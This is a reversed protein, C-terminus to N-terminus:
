QARVLDLALPPDGAQSWTGAIESHTKNMKGEYNGKVAPCDFHVALAKLAINKIPIGISKQDTSDMTGKLSGDAAQKVHVVIHLKGDKGADLIGKWDGILPSSPAAHLLPLLVFAVTVLAASRLALLVRNGNM